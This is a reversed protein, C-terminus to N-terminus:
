QQARPLFAPGVNGLLRIRSVLHDNSDISSFEDLARVLQISDIQSLAWWARQHKEGVGNQQKRGSVSTTKTLGKKQFVDQTPYTKKM